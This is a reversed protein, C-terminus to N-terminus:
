TTSPYATSRVPAKSGAATTCANRLMAVIATITPSTDTSIRVRNANTASTASTDPVVTAPSRRPMSRRAGTATSKRLGAVAYATPALTLPEPIGLRISHRVALNPRHGVVTRAQPVPRPEEGAGDPGGDGLEAAA